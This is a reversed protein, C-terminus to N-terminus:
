EKQELPIVLVFRAGSFAENPPLLLVEGGHQDVYYGVIALGLGTGKMTSAPQLQGQFFDEFILKHIEDSIGPGQDEILLQLTNDSVEASISICDGSQSFKIANSIFNSLVVKLKEYDAYLTTEPLVVKLDLQKSQLLLQYEQRLSNVLDPLAFFRNDLTSQISVAKQYELLNAVLNMINFNGVQMLQVIEKQEVNLSGILEESLLDTGEKLTALPTKLEHSINRIFQQKETELHRLEQRLGELNEGLEQLDKPGNIAIPTEFDEKVLRQIQLRTKKIPRTIYHVFFISLALALLASALVIFVLRQRVQSEYESLAIVELSQQKTGFEIIQRAQQALGAFQGLVDESLPKYAEKQMPISQFLKLEDQKLQQLREDLKAPLHESQSDKILDVLQQHHTVFVELLSAEKLVQYQRISREMSVLRELVLRSNETVVITQFVSKHAQKSYNDMAMLAYVIAFILPVSVLMFSALMWQYLTGKWPLSFQRKFTKLRSLLVSM